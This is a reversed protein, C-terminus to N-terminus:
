RHFGAGARRGSPGRALPGLEALERHCPPCDLSWFGLMFPRDRHAEVIARYSGADFPRLADGASGYIPLLALLGLAIHRLLQM